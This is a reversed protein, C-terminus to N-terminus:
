TKWPTHCNRPHSSPTHTTNLNSAPTCHAAITALGSNTPVQPRTSNKSIKKRRKHSPNNPKNPRQPILLRLPLTTTTTPKPIPCHLIESHSKRTTTHSKHPPKDATPNREPTDGPTPRHDPKCRNYTVCTIGEPLSQSTPNRLCHQPDAPTAPTYRPSQAPLM